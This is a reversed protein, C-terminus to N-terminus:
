GIEMIAIEMGAPGFGKVKGFGVVGNEWMVREMLGNFNGMAKVNAMSLSDAISGQPMSRFGKSRSIIKLCDKSFSKRKFLFESGM